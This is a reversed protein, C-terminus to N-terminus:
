LDLDIEVDAEADTSGGSHTVKATARSTGGPATPTALVALKAALPLVKIAPTSREHESNIVIAPPTPIM